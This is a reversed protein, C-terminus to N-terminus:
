NEIYIELLGRDIMNTKERTQKEQSRVSAVSDTKITKHSRILFFFYKFLLFVSNTSLLAKLSYFVAISMNKFLCACHM